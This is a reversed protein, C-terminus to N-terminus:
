FIDIVRDVAKEFEREVEGSKHELAEELLVRQRAGFDPRKGTTKRLTQEVSVFAGRRVKTKFGKASRPSIRNFRSVAEERVIEGVPKLTNRVLKRTEKGSKNVAKGFERLGRVKVSSQSFDGTPM